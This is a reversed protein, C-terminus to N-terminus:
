ESAPIEPWDVLTPYGEQQTIRNLLVRYQKWARLQDQEKDTAEGLDVADQLPAVHIAAESLLSNRRWQTQTALQEITPPPNTITMAEAETIEVVDLPLLQLGDNKIDEDSLAHIGNQPDKYFNM